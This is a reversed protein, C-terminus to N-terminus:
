PQTALPTCSTALLFFISGIDRGVVRKLFLERDSGRQDLRPSLGIKSLFLQGFLHAGSLGRDASTPLVRM